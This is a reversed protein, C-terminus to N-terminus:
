KKKLALRAAGTDDFGLPAAPKGPENGAITLTANEVQYIALSTKGIYQPFPCDSIKAIYQRPITDERLGFTGKYWVNTETEDRFEFNNGSVVFSCQHQPDGQLM